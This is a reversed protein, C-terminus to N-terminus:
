THQTSSQASSSDSSGKVLLSLSSKLNKLETKLKFNEEELAKNRDHLQSAQQGTATDDVLQRLKTNEDQLRKVEDTLSHIKEHLQTNKQEM